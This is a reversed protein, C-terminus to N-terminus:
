DAASSDDDSVQELSWVHAEQVRLIAERGRFFVVWGDEREVDVGDYTETVADAETEGYMMRYTPM